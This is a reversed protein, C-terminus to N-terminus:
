EQYKQLETNKARQQRELEGIQKNLATERKCRDIMSPDDPILFGNTICDPLAFRHEQTQSQCWIYQGEQLTITATGFARTNMSLGTLDLNPLADIALQLADIQDQLAELEQSLSEAMRQRYAKQKQEAAKGRPIPPRMGSILSYVGFCYILDYALVHHSPDKWVTDRTMDIAVMEPSAEIMEVLEDCMSYYAALKFTQAM